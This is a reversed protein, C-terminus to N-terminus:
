TKSRLQEEAIKRLATADKEMGNDLQVMKHRAAQYPPDKKCRYVFYDCAEQLSEFLVQTHEFSTESAVFVGVTCKTPDILLAAPQQRSLKLSMKIKYKFEM